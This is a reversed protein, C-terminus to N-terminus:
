PGGPSSISAAEAETWAGEGPSEARGGAREQEQCSTEPGARGCRQGPTTITPHQLVLHPTPTPYSICGKDTSAGFVALLSTALFRSRNPPDCVAASQGWSEWTPAWYWM